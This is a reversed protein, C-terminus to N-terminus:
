ALPPYDNQEKRKVVLRARRERSRPGSLAPLSPQLGVRRASETSLWRVSVPWPGPLGRATLYTAGPQARLAASARWVAAPCNPHHNAAHPGHALSEGCWLRRTATRCWPRRSRSGTAGRTAGRSSSPPQGRGWGRPIGRGAAARRAALGAAGTVGSGRRALRDRRVRAPRTGTANGSSGGLM